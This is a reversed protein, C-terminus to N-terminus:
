AGGFGYDLIVARGDLEGINGAHLDRCQIRVKELKKNIHHPDRDARPNGMKGVNTARASILLKSDSSIWLCPAFLVRQAPTMKKWSDYENKNAEAGEGTRGVKAVLPVGKIAYVTRHIGAGLYDFKEDNVRDKGVLGNLSNLVEFTLGKVVMEVNQVPEPLEIIEEPAMLVPGPGWLWDNVDFELNGHQPCPIGRRHHGCIHADGQGGPICQCIIGNKVTPKAKPQVPVEVVQLRAEDWMEEAVQLRAEDWMRRMIPRLKRTRVFIHDKRAFCDHPMPVVVVRHGAPLLCRMGKASRANCIDATKM